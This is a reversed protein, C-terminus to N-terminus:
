HRTNLPPLRNHPRQPAQHDPRRRQNTPAPRRAGPAPVSLANRDVRDNHIRLNLANVMETTDCVFLADRGLETDATYAALADATMTIADGCHLRDYSRYWDM